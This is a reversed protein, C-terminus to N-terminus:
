RPATARGDRDVLLRGAAVGARRHAGDGLDVVVQAQEVGPHAPGVAGVAPAGHGALRRLLDDVADEVQGLPGAELHEGGHHPSALPLVLGEEVVQGLLAEGPGPDVALHDLQGLAGRQVQGAVLLVGDLDDHVPQDPAVVDALAEGLRHLRRQAEGVADGLDADDGVVPGLLEDGEGLVQGAREAPQGELLGRGAVEREVRGVPGARRAVPEPVCNSTSGSSTTGSGVLDSSSPAMEGHVPPWLRQNSRM